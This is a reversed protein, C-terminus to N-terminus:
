PKPSIFAKHFLHRALMLTPMRLWNARIYLCFRAADSLADSCSAVDPLLARRYIMDMWRLM